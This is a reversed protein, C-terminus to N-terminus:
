DDVYDSDDVYNTMLKMQTMLMKLMVMDTMMMMIICTVTMTMMMLTTLSWQDYNM